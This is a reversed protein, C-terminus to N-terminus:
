SSSWIPRSTRTSCGISCRARATRRTSTRRDVLAYASRRRRARRRLAARAAAASRRPPDVRLQRLVDVGARPGDRPVVPARLPRSSRAAAPRRRPSRRDRVRRPMMREYITGARWNWVIRPYKGYGALLEDSGEGTLVVTVHQRALASVFYLPVSSPHAIPEDEHWVLRRCRASSTRSRRHRDRPARRRDRARGRARVRARQVRTGRLGGLLDPAAPRDDAGDARRHRQQRHRGVSVHRAARREDAAAPRIGGAARPIACRRRRALTVASRCTRMAASTPRDACGLVAPDADRRERVRASAGAAAQLRRPVADGRRRRVAHQASRAAGSREGRSSRPRERAAGQDGIRVVAHRRVRRGTSRSSASGIACSCCGGSRRTGCRSRSCGASGTSATTAGSSTPTCSRKPTPSAHPLRPRAAELERRVDAHNYIEGNFSVWIRRTRTRCRSSAPRLDVISLRRHALVAHADGHLGAEDPGRHALVDRMAIARAEAGPALGDRSVFGAIGCM